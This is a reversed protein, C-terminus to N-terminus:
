ALRRRRLLTLLSLGGLAAISPEPILSTYTYTVTAYGTVNSVTFAQQLGSLGTINVAQNATFVLNFTGNGIYGGLAGSYIDGSANLTADAPAWAYYDDGGVDFTSTSDGDTGAINYSTSSVAELGTLFSQFSGNVLAVTNGQSTLSGVLSHSLSLTGGEESDNDVSLSGGTKTFSLSVTVGTLTRTGGQTDFQSFTLVSSGNPTFAFVEQESLQYTQAACFTSMAVLAAAFPILKM